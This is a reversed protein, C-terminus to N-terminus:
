IARGHSLVDLTTVQKVLFGPPRYVAGTVLAGLRIRTTCGAAFSLASYSELMPEEKEGVGPIQWFHDMVFFATLGQREAGQAAGRFKEAIAGTGGDWTFRTCSLSLKVIAETEARHSAAYEGRIGVNLLNM